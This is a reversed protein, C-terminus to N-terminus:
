ASEALTAREARDGVVTLTGRSLTGIGERVDELSPPAARSAGTRGDGGGANEALTRAASGNEDMALAHMEVAADWARRGQGRADALTRELAGLAVVEARSTRDPTAQLYAALVGVQGMAHYSCEWAYLGLDSDRLAASLTGVGTGNAQQALVRGVAHARWDLDSAVHAVLSWGAPAGDDLHIRPSPARRPLDRHADARAERHAVASRVLDEAAVADFAGVVALVSREPRFFASHYRVLDERGLSGLAAADGVVTSASATPWIEAALADLLRRAPDTSARWRIEDLVVTREQDIDRAALLPAFAADVLADLGRMGLPAALHSEFMCWERGTAAFFSRPSRELAAIATRGPFRRSGRLVLHELFHAAGRTTRDEFLSGARVHLALGTTARDVRPVLVVQMGGLELTRANM